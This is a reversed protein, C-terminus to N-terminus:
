AGGGELDVGWEDKLLAKLMACLSWHCNLIAECPVSGDAIVSPLYREVCDMLAGALEKGYGDQLFELVADYKKQEM